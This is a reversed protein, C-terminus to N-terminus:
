TLAVWIIPILLNGTHVAELLFLFWNTSISSIRKRASRGILRTDIDEEKRTMTMINRLHLFIINMCPRKSISRRSMFEKLRAASLKRKRNSHKCFIKIRDILTSLKKSSCKWLMSLREISASWTKSSSKFFRRLMDISASLKKSSCKWLMGLREISASWTKSSYNSCFRSDVFNRRHKDESCIM